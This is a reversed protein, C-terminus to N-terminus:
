SSLEKDISIPRAVTALALGVPVAFANYWYSVDSLLGLFVPWPRDTVAAISLYQLAFFPVLWGACCAIALRPEASRLFRFLLVGFFFTIVIVPVVFLVTDSLVRAFGGNARAFDAFWPPWAIAALRGTVFLLLAYLLAGGLIALLLPNKRM